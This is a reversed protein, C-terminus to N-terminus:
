AAGRRWTRLSAVDDLRADYFALPSGGLTSQAFTRLLDTEPDYLAIAMRAVGAHEERVAGHLAEIQQGIRSGTSTLLGM